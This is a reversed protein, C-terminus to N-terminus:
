YKTGIKDIENYIDVPSYQFQDTVFLPRYAKQYIYKIMGSCIFSTESRENLGFLNPSNYPINKANETGAVFLEQRITTAMVGADVNNRRGVQIDNGETVMRTMFETLKIKQLGADPLMELVWKEGSSDIYLMGTHNTPGQTVNKTTDALFGTGNVFIIDGTQGITSVKQYENLLSTRIENNTRFGRWGSANDFREEINSWIGPQSLKTWVNEAQENTSWYFTKSVDGDSTRTWSMQAGYLDELTFGYGSLRQLDGDFLSGAGFRNNYYEIFGDKLSVNFPQSYSAIKADVYDGYSNYYNYGGDERPEVVFITNGANDKIEAYTQNGNDITQWIGLGGWENYMTTDDYFGMKAYGDKGIEGLSWSVDGNGSTVGLGLPDWDSADVLWKFLGTSHGGDSQTPTDVAIVQQGNVTETRYQGTQLMHEFYGGLTYGTRVIQNVAV